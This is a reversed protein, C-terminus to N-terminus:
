SHDTLVIMSVLFSMLIFVVSRTGNHMDVDGARPSMALAASVASNPGSGTHEAEESEPGFLDSTVFSFRKPTGAMRPTHANDSSKPTNRQSIAMVERMVVGSPPMTAAGTRPSATRCETFSRKEELVGDDSFYRAFSAEEIQEPGMMSPSAMATFSKPTRPKGSSLAGLVTDPVHGDGQNQLRFSLRRLGSVTLKSTLVPPPPPPTAKLIAPSPVTRL